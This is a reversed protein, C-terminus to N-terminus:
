INCSIVYSYQVIIKDNFPLGNHRQYCNQRQSTQKSFCFFATLANILKESVSSPSEGKAAKYKSSPPRYIINGIIASWVYSIKKIHCLM